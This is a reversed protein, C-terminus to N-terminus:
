PNAPGAASVEENAAFSDIDKAPQFYAAAITSADPMKLGKDNLFPSDKHRLIDEISIGPSEKSCRHIVFQLGEACENEVAKQLGLETMNLLIAKSRDAPDASRQGYTAGNSQIMVLAREHLTIGSITPESSLYDRVSLGHNGLSRTTALGSNGAIVYTCPIRTIYNSVKIGLNKTVEKSYQIINGELDRLHRYTKEQGLRLGQTAYVFHPPHSGEAALIRQQEALNAASHDASLSILRNSKPLFISITTCGVHATRIKMSGKEELMLVISSTTGSTGVQGKPNLRLADDMQKFLTSFKLKWEQDEWNQMQSLSQSFFIITQVATIEAAVHGLKRHGGFIALCTITLDNVRTSLSLFRDQKAKNGQIACATHEISFSSVLGEQPADAAAPAEFAQNLGAQVDPDNSWYLPSGTLPVSQM